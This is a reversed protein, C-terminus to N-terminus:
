AFIIKSLVDVLLLCFINSFNQLAMKELFAFTDNEESIKKQVFM